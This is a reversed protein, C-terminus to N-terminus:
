FRPGASKALAAQKLAAKSHMVVTNAVKIAKKEKGDKALAEAKKIMKKMDRWEFGAAAAEKKAAKAAKIADAAGGAMASTTLSLALTALVLKLNM